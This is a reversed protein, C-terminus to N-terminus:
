LNATQRTPQNKNHTKLVASTNVSCVPLTCKRSFAWMERATAIPTYSPSASLRVLIFVFRRCDLISYIWRCSSHAFRPIEQVQLKEHRRSSVRCCASGKVWTHPQAARHAVATVPVRLIGTWLEKIYQWCKSVTDLDIVIGLQEPPFDQKSLNLKRRWACSTQEHNNVASRALREAVPRWVRM